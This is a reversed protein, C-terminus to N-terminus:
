RGESKPLVSKPDRINPDGGREESEDGSREGDERGDRRHRHQDVEERLGAHEHTHAQMMGLRVQARLRAEEATGAASRTGAGIARHPPPALKPATKKLAAPRGLLRRVFREFRPFREFTSREFLSLLKERYEQLMALWARSGSGGFRSEDDGVGASLDIQGTAQRIRRSIALGARRAAGVGQQLASTFWARFPQVRM